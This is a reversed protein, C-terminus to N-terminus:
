PESTGTRGYRDELRVVDDLEPSSVEFLVTDAMAIFRHRTRPPLHWSEGPELHVSHLPTAATEDAAKGTKGVELRLRGSQIYITEEKSRHYQLSLAQGACIFLLKGAYRPGAAFVLEHGWPKEVRRVEMRGRSVSDGDSTM